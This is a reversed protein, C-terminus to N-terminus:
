SKKVHADEAARLFRRHLARTRSNMTGDITEVSHEAGIPQFM